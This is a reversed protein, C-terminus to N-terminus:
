EPPLSFVRRYTLFGDQAEAIALLDGEPTVVRHAGAPHKPVEVRGGHRVREAAAGAVEIAPLFALAERETVLRAAVVPGGVCITSVPLAQALTFPGTSMRRLAALHGGCGLADGLSAALVRVYFGKSSRVFVDVAEPTFDRLVLEHVTVIRPARDVVEGARAREYLRKGQVRVASFMPPTQPHTGRFKALAAELLTRSLDPIARTRVVKGDADLSDTDIGLRITALYSKQAETLFQVVRTASGLCLPLVGTAMPDLTGCHGVKDLKLARRVDRVVDFSTVAKPKDAVLIGNLERM